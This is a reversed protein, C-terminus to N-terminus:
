YYENAVDSICFGITGTFISKLSTRYGRSTSYIYSYGMNNTRMNRDNFLRINSTSMEPSVWSKPKFM